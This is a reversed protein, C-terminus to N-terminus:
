LTCPQPGPPQPRTFYAQRSESIPQNPSLLHSINTQAPHFFPKTQHKKTKPAKKQKNPLGPARSSTIQRFSALELPILRCWHPYRTIPGHTTCVGSELMAPRHRADPPRRSSTISHISAKKPLFTTM